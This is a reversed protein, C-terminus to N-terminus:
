KKETPRINIAFDAPTAYYIASSVLADVGTNAYDELNGDDIGGAAFLKLHPYEARLAMAWDHLLDAPFKDFQLGAVGRQAFQRADTLKSHGMELEVIIPIATRTAPPREQLQELLGALGGLFNSHQRFLLISESLGLRHPYVGGVAAAAIALRRIGPFHKRTGDVIVQASVRQVRQQWHQARQAIGSSYSLLGAVIKWAGHLEYATGVASLVLDGPSITSGSPLCDLVEAGFQGLIQAAPEVGALLTAERAHVSLVGKQRGIGLFETSLDLYPLDEQLLAGIEAPTLLIM